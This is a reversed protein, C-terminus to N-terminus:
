KEQVKLDLFMTNTSFPVNTLNPEIRYANYIGEPASSILFYQPYLDAGYWTLLDESVQPIFNYFNLQDAPVSYILALPSFDGVTWNPLVSLNSNSILPSLNFACELMLPQRDPDAISYPNQGLAGYYNLEWSDILGDGDRDAGSAPLTGFFFNVEGAYLGTAINTQSTPGLADPLDFKDGMPPIGHLFSVGGLPFPADKYSNPQDTGPPTFIRLFLNTTPTVITIPQETTQLTAWYLQGHYGEFEPYTWQTAPQGYNAGYNTSQGTWPFNYAKTHTFIEQGAIRNKWVRYPGQGLWNMATIQNSPYNFTVGMFSQTGTLWYQYNLKLWGDPRLTWFFANTQSGLSNVAIYYNTGDTYNTLSTVIWAPGAVPMPGNTFSVLLNSVTLSDIIGTTRSFHFIRPGNTVIIETASSGATIPPAGASVNGLIRNQIQTPTHLPWTWTYINRGFSDNATFRLADYNTWNTPFSPLVLSGGNGVSSGPALPSGAFYGSDLAVLFGGVLANTSFTNTPDGADPFWGLQWDFTCQSLDTFDFRNTVELTGNFTAPNPVGIQVPSYIEKYSYYSAEKERYPGVIGDPASSGRVDMIGGQDNRIIGEDDWSWTWLGVGNSATRMANWYDQLAIGGGGDYISHLCETASFATKGSGLSNTLLTFDPYHYDYLNMFTSDEGPRIVQRNQIDYLAFYNTSGTNGGDLNANWGGENGNDWAIICPDNVDRRIMEYIHKIGNTLDIVYQYSNMEELVYVGQRDCEQLFTKDEPYHSERVSNFNMDKIMAVDNSNQADSSTRGTTPWEEHHCIGRMVVKKGNVFFGQQPVFTVTRFGIQNTTTHVVVGNTNMLQVTLTYLTPSESSWANPTPLSASLMVDTAGASVSNSFVNGLMVNNTDTVFAQVDYNNTIGGLYANVTINGNALPNAAVYDIYALPKAELYVPRYIGGFLWYDVNGQEAGEVTRSASWMRVKVTLVNTSAGVVVYPTVDYRFEYYGGQHTPGVSQGNISASTDTMAGEFVLFIEKGAWSPPVAFTNTYFGTESNSKIMGSGTNQTYGFAGFGMSQWCSPVPINTAIGANQESSISFQWPVTHDKDTGSLYQVLTPANAPGAAQTAFSQSPVTWTIGAVNTANVAYYYTTNTSSGTGQYSFNGSQTGLTVSASHVELCALMIGTWVLSQWKLLRLADM